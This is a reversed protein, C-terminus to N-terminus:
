ATKTQNIEPFNLKAFAGHLERAARDYASAAESLTNFRGLLYFTSNARIKAIYVIGSRNKQIHVGKVGLKSKCKINQCNQAKTCLRLNNKRNDLGNGSIHDVLEGPRPKMLFRHLYIKGEPGRGSARVYINTKTKHINWTLSSIKDFDEDDIKVVYENSKFSLVLDM